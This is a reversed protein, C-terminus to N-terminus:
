IGTSRAVQSFPGDAGVIMSTDYTRKSTKISYGKGSKKYGLFKEGLNIKVGKDLAKDLIFRDFRARDLVLNEKKLDIYMEKGNPSVMKFKRIKSVILNRPIDVFQKVSDTLIGTCAVPDGCTKHEEFITVDDHKEKYAYFSGAPGAGIVSIM